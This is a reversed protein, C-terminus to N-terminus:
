LLTHYPEIFQPDLTTAADSALPALLKLYAPGFPGAQMDEQANLDQDWM